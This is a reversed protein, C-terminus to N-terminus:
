KMAKRLRVWLTMIVKTSHIDKLQDEFLAKIQPKTQDVYSDLSAKPTGPIVLCKCDRKLVTENETATLGTQEGEQETTEKQGERAEKEEIDKLKDQGYEISSMM